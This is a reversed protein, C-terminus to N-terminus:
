KMRSTNVTFGVISFTVWQRIWPAAGWCSGNRENEYVKEGFLTHTPPRRGGIPFGPDAVTIGM